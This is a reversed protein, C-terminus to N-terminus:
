SINCPSVEKMAKRRCETGGSIIVNSTSGNPCSAWKALILTILIMKLLWDGGHILDLTWPKNDWLSADVLKTGSFWAVDLVRSKGRGELRRNQLKSVFRAIVYIVVLERVLDISVILAPVINNGTGARNM